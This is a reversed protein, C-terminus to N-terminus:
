AVRSFWSLSLLGALLALLAGIAAFLASLETQRRELLMRSSLQQYVKTLDAATSAHFYEGRTIEAVQKLAQEDLQMYMSWGGFDVRGGQPTGFGVTYVKVGFDAAIRAIAVPDPGTTRRGDSMLIIAGHPYSGPPVPTPKAQAPPPAPNRERETKLPGFRAKGTGFTYLEVDIGAEPLLAALSVLLAGGTATQRQMQLRDVAADLEERNNTPPQVLAAAGAFSVIGVRVPEPLKEFFAKAAAQAALFRSPEVDTARMSLSVDIALIITQRASLAPVVAQPRAAALLLAVVASLCLLAPVHRRLRQGVGQAERVLGLSPYRVAHKAKRRLLWLYLGILLPVALLSWLALPWQFTM